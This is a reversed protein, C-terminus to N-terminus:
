RHRINIQRTPPMAYPTRLEAETRMYLSPPKRPLYIRKLLHKKLVDRDTGRKRQVTEAARVPRLLPPWHFAAIVTGSQMCVNWGRETM